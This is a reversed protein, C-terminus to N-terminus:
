MFRVVVMVPFDGSFGVTSLRKMKDVFKHLVADFGYVKIDPSHALCLLHVNAFCSNYVDPLNKVVYYFVGVNYM